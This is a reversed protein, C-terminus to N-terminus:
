PQVARKLGAGPRFKVKRGASIVIPLGTSPSRGMRAKGLTIEWKGFGMLEVSEGRALAAEIRAEAYRIADEVHHQKLGTLGSVENILEKRNM